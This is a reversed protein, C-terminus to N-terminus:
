MHRQQQLVSCWIQVLQILLSLTWWPEFITEPSSLIWEDGHITPSFTPFRKKYTFEVKWHLLQFLIEFHIMPQLANVRVHAIYCVSVWIM